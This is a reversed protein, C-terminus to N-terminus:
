HVNGGANLIAGADPQRALALGANAATRGAIEVNEQRDTRVGEELAIAGIQM